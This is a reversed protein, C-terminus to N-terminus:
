LYAHKEGKITADANRGAPLCTSGVIEKDGGTFLPAVFENNLKVVSHVKHSSKM